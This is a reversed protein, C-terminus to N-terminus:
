ARQEDPRRINPSGHACWLIRDPIPWGNNAFVPGAMKVAAMRFDVQVVVGSLWARQLQDGQLQYCQVEVQEGVEFKRRSM